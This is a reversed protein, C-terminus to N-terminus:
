NWKLTRLSEDAGFLIAHVFFIGAGNQERVRLFTLTLNWKYDKSTAHRDAGEAVKKEHIKILM